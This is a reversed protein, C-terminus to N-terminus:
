NDREIIFHALARLLRTDYSQAALIDLISETEALLAKTKMCAKDLGLMAPYTNKGMKQDSGQRKGTRASDGTINLIDDQVQFALGITAAYQTLIPLAARGREGAALAGMRVAAQILAGTKYRHMQELSELSIQCGEAALDMAQGSCMGAAGSAAALESIMALRYHIAVDPMPKDALISFALTQLADGTLIANAEGFKVHCSARGRRLDDNDMAPLDDHVLSYTHICEVATAPIDLTDLSVDFLQGTIYVLWPRLRKGESLITYRMAAILPNSNTDLEAMFNSLAQNVRQRYGALQESIGQQEILESM